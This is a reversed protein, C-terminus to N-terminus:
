KNRYKDPVILMPTGTKKLVDHAVSGILAEYFAGHGHSGIIIMQAHVEKAKELIENSAVGEVVDVEYSIGKEKIFATIENLREKKLKIINEEIEHVYPVSLDGIASSVDTSVIHLFHLRAPYNAVFEVAFEIIRKSFDGLDIAVVINKM